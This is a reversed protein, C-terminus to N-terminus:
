GFLTVGVYSQGTYDSDGTLTIAINSANPIFAVTKTGSAATDTPPNAGNTGICPVSFRANSSVTSLNKWSTWSGRSLSIGLLYLKGPTLSTFTCTLSERLGSTQYFSLRQYDLQASPLMSVTDAANSKGNM